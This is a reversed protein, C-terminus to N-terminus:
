AFNIVYDKGFGKLVKEVYEVLCDWSEYASFEIWQYKMFRWLIEILNLEPSYAPLWFIEIHQRQWEEIKDYFIGSTHVSAQDMVIVTPQTCTLAFNDICAVIVSSNISKEFVYADLEQQRNLLGVVNLRPSRQSLLCLVTDSEQWAYPILPTLCFGSEDLYRLDLKGQDAQQKLIELKKKKAQFEVPDPAGAVVRRMRRWSMAFGKLIRKVTDKSVKVGWTQQIRQLVKKLQHPHENVWQRISEKQEPTFTQKRGRGPRDYLGVFKRTEWAVFWNHITKRSVGLIQMLEAMSFGQVSLLICHARQRVQFSQSQRYIRQLLSETEVAIPAITRMLDGPHNLTDGAIKGL